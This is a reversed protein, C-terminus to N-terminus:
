LHYTWDKCDCDLQSYALTDIKEARLLFIQGIDPRFEMRSTQLRAM